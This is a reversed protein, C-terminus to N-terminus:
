RGPPAAKVLSEMERAANAFRNSCATMQAGAVKPDIKSNQMASRVAPRDGHADLRGLYFFLARTAAQRAPEEKASKAFANSLALCRVDDPVSQAFAPIAIGALFLGGALTSIKMKGGFAARLEIAALNGCPAVAVETAMAAKSRLVQGARYASAQAPNHDTDSSHPPIRTLSPRIDPTTHFASMHPVKGSRV